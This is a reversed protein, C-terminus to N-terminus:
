KKVTFSHIVSGTYDIFSNTLSSFDSSFTSRTFGAVRKTWVTDFHHHNDGKVSGGALKTVAVDQEQDKTKVLSGAGSTIYNGKSDITYQSLTHIHGNLYLDVPYQQLLATFDLVDVEDAPHHGAIVLWDDKPVKALEASLWKYQAGCDQTMIHEHFLCPGEFQDSGSVISCTPYQESCPDWNTKNDSRYISICPSTDLAIFTMHHTDDLAIRRSYYRADMVWHPYQKGLEIQADVNYGYEHNGLISLWPVQLSEHSLFPKVWDAQVQFDSVNQIGCWYFNDGTNIVLQTDQEKAMAAAVQKVTAAVWDYPGGLASGGWDGVSLFSFGSAAQVFLLATLTTRQIM